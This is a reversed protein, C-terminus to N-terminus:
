QSLAEVRMSLPILTNTSHHTPLPFEFSHGWSNLWGLGDLVGLFQSYVAGECDESIPCGFTVVHLGKTKESSVDALANAIVLAGKSHGFVRRIANSKTLLSHLVDSSGSGRRFVPVGNAAEAHDDVTMMLSRGIRATEPASAALMQQTVEKIWGHMGFGFWGGLAQQFVDAVGYGPVIVAVPEGTASAINWGFAVSGLASSGVGTISASHINSGAGNLYGAFENADSFRTVYPSANPDVVLIAGEPNSLASLDLNSFVRELEPAAITQANMGGRATVLSGRKALEVRLKEVDYFAIDLATNALRLSRLMMEVLPRPMEFLPLTNIEANPM